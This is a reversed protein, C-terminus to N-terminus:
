NTEWELTQMLRAVDERLFDIVVNLSDKNPKENLYLSGRLFHHTSDTLYFQISSATNGEIDYLAGYVKREPARYEKMNIGDAKITHKYVFKHTDEVYEALNEKLPFYTLHLQGNQKPFYINQWSYQATDDDKLTAYIPLQFTYLGREEVLHYKKEPFSIRFYGKAKPTPKDGCSLFLFLIFALRILKM